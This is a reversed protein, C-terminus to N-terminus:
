EAMAAQKLVENEVQEKTQLEKHINATKSWGSKKNDFM